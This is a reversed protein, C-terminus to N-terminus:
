VKNYIENQGEEKIDNVFTKEDYETLCMDIAEVRHVLLFEKLMGYSKLSNMLDLALHPDFKENIEKEQVYIFM